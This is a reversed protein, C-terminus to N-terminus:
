WEEPTRLAITDRLSKVSEDACNRIRRATENSGDCRFGKVSYNKFHCVDFKQLITIMKNLAAEYGELNYSMGSLIGTFVKEVLNVSKYNLPITNILANMNELNKPLNSVMPKQVEQAEQKNVEEVHIALKIVRTRVKRTKKNMYDRVFIIYKTGISRVNIRSYGVYNKGLLGITFLDLENSYENVLNLVEESTATYVKLNKM